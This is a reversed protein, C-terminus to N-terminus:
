FFERRQRPVAPADQELPDGAVVEDEAKGVKAKGPVAKKAPVAKTPKEELPEGKSAEEADEEDYGNNKLWRRAREGTLRTEHDGKRVWVSLEEDDEADRLEELEKLQRMQEASLKAM